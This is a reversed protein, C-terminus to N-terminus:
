IEGDTFGNEGVEIHENIHENEDISGSGKTLGSAEDPNSNM